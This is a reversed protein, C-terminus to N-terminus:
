GQEGVPRLHLVVGVRKGPSVQLREDLQDVIFADGVDALQKASDAWLGFGIVHDRGDMLDLAKLVVRDANGAVEPELRVVVALVRHVRFLLAEEIDCERAGLAVQVDSGDLNVHM